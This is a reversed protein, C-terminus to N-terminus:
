IQSIRQKYSRRNFLDCWSYFSSRVNNDDNVMEIVIRIAFFRQGFGMTCTGGRQTKRGMGHSSGSCMEMAGTLKPFEVRSKKAIRAIYFSEFM